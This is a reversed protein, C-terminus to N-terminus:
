VGEEKILGHYRAAGGPYSVHPATSGAAKDAVACDRGAIWYVYGLTDKDARTVYQNPGKIGDYGRWFLGAFSSGYRRQGNPQFLDRHRTQFVQLTLLYNKRYIRNRFPIRMIGKM